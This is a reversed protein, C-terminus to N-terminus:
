SPPAVRPYGLGSPRSAQPRWVRAPGALVRSPEACDLVGRGKPPSPSRATQVPVSVEAGRRARRSGGRARGAQWGRAAGFGSESPFGRPDRGSRTPPRSQVSPWSPGARRADPFPIPRSAALTGGRRSLTPLGPQSGRVQHRGRRNAWSPNCGQSRVGPVRASFGILPKATGASAAEQRISRSTPRPGSLHLRSRGRVPVVRHIPLSAWPEAQNEGLRRRKASHEKREERGTAGGRTLAPRRQM